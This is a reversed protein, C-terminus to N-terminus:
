FPNSLYNREIFTDNENKVLTIHSPPRQTTKLFRPHMRIRNLNRKERFRACMQTHKKNINENAAVKSRLELEM